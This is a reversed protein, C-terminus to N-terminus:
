DNDLLAPNVASESPEVPAKVIAAHDPNDLPRQVADELASLGQQAELMAAVADREVVLADLRAQVLEMRDAYGRSFQREVRDRLARAAAIHRRAAEAAEFARQYRSAATAAEAIVSAQLALFAKEEVERRAEAERILARSRAKPPVFGLFAISWISEDVDWFYGPVLTVDPYQRAVELKVAAEAVAYDALKRRLDLRNLLAERQVDRAAPPAVPLELGTFDLRVQALEDLPVAVAEAVGALARDRVVAARGLLLDGEALRQRVFNAELASTYGTSVRKEVLSLLTRRVEQEQALTELMRTAEYLEVFHARLRSRVRWGAMGVEILAAEEMRELQESFAQRKGGVDWTLGVLVGIGWPTEGPATKDNFEPRLTVSYPLRTRSTALEAGFVRARAQAVAVDPHLFVAALALSPLDWSPRPWVTVDQGQTRLYERLAEDALTRARYATETAGPDIPKPEYKAFGCGGACLVLVLSLWVGPVNMSERRGRAGGSRPHLGTAVSSRVGGPRLVRLSRQQRVTGGMGSGDHM